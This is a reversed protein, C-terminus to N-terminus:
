EDGWEDIRGCFTKRHQPCLGYSRIAMRHERTGYGKHKAFGYHPYAKSQREMFSDRYTKALISAAAISFIKADGQVVAQQEHPLRPLLARGDVCVYVKQKATVQVREVVDAVASRMVRMNAEQIGIADVVRAPVSKISWQLAHQKIHLLLKVREKESLKKSDTVKRLEYPVAQFHTPFIVAAAVIPGALPGRGVEDVGVVWSYGEKIKAQEFDVSLRSM